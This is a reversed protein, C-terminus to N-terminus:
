EREYGRTRQTREGGRENANENERVSTGDLELEREQTRERGRM